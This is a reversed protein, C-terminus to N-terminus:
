NSRNPYPKMLNQGLSFVDDGAFYYPVLPRWDQYNVDEIPLEKPQPINIKEGELAKFFETNRLVGGDSIKAQCGVDAFIFQSRAGVIALLVISLFGKYNFYDSGSGPPHLICVHKRDIAGLCNKSAAVQGSM